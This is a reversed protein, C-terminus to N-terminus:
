RLPLLPLLAMRIRAVQLDRAAQARNALARQRLLRADALEVQTSVGERFRVEAITYARDAQDVTGSTAAWQAEAARLGEVADARAAEALELTQHLRTQADLHDATASRIQGRIAGGNFIPVQVQLQVNVADKWAGEGTPPLVNDSWGILAANGILGVAPLGPARALDVSADSIVVAAEAQAVANHSEAPATGVLSAVLGDVPEPEELSATPVIEAPPLDLYNGLLLRARVLNRESNILAVRQNEVEVRARLVDFEATRGVQGALETNALTKEAQELTSASIEVLRQALIADYYASAVTLAVWARTSEVSLDAVRTGYRAMRTAATTRGGGYLGAQATLSLQWTDQVAFPNIPEEAAAGGTGTAGTATGTGTPAGGSPAGFVDDFQSSFQHQYSIGGNVTPIWGARATWYQGEARTQGAEALDLEEAVDLARALADELTLASEAARATPAVLALLLPLSRTLM